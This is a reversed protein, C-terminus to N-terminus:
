NGPAYPCPRASSSVTIYKQAKIRWGHSDTVYVTLWASSAFSENVENEWYTGPPYWSYSFPATGFPADAWWVCNQNPRVVSPGTITVTPYIQLCGGNGTNVWNEQILFDKSGIRQNAVGTGNNYTEGAQWPPGACRDPVTWVSVGDDYWWGNGYWDTTSEEIEHALVTVEADAASDANPPPLHFSCYQWHTKVYDM